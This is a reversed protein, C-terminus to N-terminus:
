YESQAKIIDMIDFTLDFDNLVNFVASSLKREKLENDRFGDLKNNMIVDHLRLALAEDQELNDYLARKAKTDIGTPYAAHEAPNSVRAAIKKVKELYEQYAITEHKRQQILEDLLKSM